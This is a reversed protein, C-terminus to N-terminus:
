RKGRTAEALPPRCPPFLILFHRRYRSHARDVESWEENGDHPSRGYRRRSVVTGFFLSTARTSHSVSRLSSLSHRVSPSLSPRSVSKENGNRGDGPAEGRESRDSLRREHSVERCRKGNWEPRRGPSRGTSRLLPTVLPSLSLSSVAEM